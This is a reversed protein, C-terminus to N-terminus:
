KFISTIKEEGCLLIHHIPMNFKRQLNKKNETIKPAIMEQYLLDKLEEKTEENYLKCYDELFSLMYIRELHILEEHTFNKNEELVAFYLMDGNQYDTLLDKHPHTGSKLHHLHQYARRNLNETQGVYIKKNNFNFIMYVGCNKTKPIKFTNKM